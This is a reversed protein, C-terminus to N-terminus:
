FHAHISYSGMLPPHPTDPYLLERRRCYAYESTGIHVVVQRRCYEHKLTSNCAVLQHQKSGPYLPMAPMFTLTNQPNSIYQQVSQLSSLAILWFTLAIHLRSIRYHM